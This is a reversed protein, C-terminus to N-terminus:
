IMLIFTSQNLIEPRYDFKWGLKLSERMGSQRKITNRFLLKLKNLHFTNKSSHIKTM